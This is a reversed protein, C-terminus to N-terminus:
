DEGKHDKQDPLPKRDLDIIRGQQGSDLRDEVAEDMREGIQEIGATEDVVDQGTRNPDDDTKEDGSQDADRKPEQDASEDDEMPDEGWYDLDETGETWDGPDRKRHHYEFGIGDGIDEPDMIRCRDEALDLEPHEEDDEITTEKGDKEISNM